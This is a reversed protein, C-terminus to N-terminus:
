QSAWSAVAARLAAHLTLGERKAKRELRAWVEPPFRVSKPVSGGAETGKKPRGRGARIRALLADGEEALEAQHAELWAAPLYESGNRAEEETTTEWTKGRPPRALPKRETM